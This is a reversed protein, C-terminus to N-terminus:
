QAWKIYIELKLPQRLTWSGAQAGLTGEATVLYSEGVHQAPDFGDGVTLIARVNNESVSTKLSGVSEQVNDKTWSAAVAQQNGRWLPWACLKAIQTTEISAAAASITEFQYQITAVGNSYSADTLRTSMSWSQMASKLTKTYHQVSYGWGNRWVFCVRGICGEFMGAPGTYMDLNNMLIIAYKLAWEYSHSLEVNTESQGPTLVMGVVLGEQSDVSNELRGSFYGAGRETVLQIAPKSLSAYLTNQWPEWSEDVEVVISGGQIDVTGYEQLGIAVSDMSVPQVEEAFLEQGAQGTMVFQTNLRERTNSNYLELQFIVQRGPVNLRHVLGSRLNYFTTEVNEGVLQGVAAYDCTIYESGQAAGLVRLQYSDWSASTFLSLPVVVIDPNATDKVEYNIVENYTEGAITVPQLSPGSPTLRGGALYWSIMQNWITVGKKERFGEQEIIESRHLRCYESADSFASRNQQQSETRPNVGGSSKRRLTAKGKFSAGTVMGVSQSLPGLIGHSLKGM